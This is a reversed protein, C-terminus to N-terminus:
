ILRIRSVEKTKKNRIELVQDPDSLEEDIVQYLGTAQRVIDTVTVGHKEALGRLADATARNINVNLRTTTASGM